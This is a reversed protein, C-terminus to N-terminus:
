VSRIDDTRSRCSLFDVVRALENYAEPLRCTRTMRRKPRQGTVGSRGGRASMRQTRRCTELPGLPRLALDLDRQAALSRRCRCLWIASQHGFALLTTRSIPACT